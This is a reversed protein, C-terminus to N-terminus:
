PVSTCHFLMASRTKRERSCRFAGTVHWQLATRRPKQQAGRSQAQRCRDNVRLRHGLARPPPPDPPQAFTETGSGAAGAGNASTNSQLGRIKDQGWRWLAMPNCAGVSPPCSEPVGWVESSGGRGGCQRRPTGSSSPTHHPRRTGIAPTDPNKKNLVAGLSLVWPGGAALRWGSGVAVLQWAGVALLSARTGIVQDRNWPGTCPGLRHRSDSVGEELAGLWHEGQRALKFPMQLRCYGGGVAKAVEELRRDLRM